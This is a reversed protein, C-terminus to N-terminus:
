TEHGIQSPLGPRAVFLDHPLEVVSHNDLPGRNTDLLGWTPSSWKRLECRRHHTTDIDETGDDEDQLAIKSNTGKFVRSASV